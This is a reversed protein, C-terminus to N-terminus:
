TRAPPGRPGLHGRAPQPAPAEKAAVAMPAVAHPRAATDPPGPADLLALGALACAALCAPEAHGPTEAPTGHHAGSCIVGGFADRAPAAGAGTVLGATVLQLVLSYAVLIATWKGHRRRRGGM